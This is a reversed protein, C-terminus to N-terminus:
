RYPIRTSKGKLIRDGRETDNVWCSIMERTSLFNQLGGDVFRIDIDASIAQKPSCLENNKYKIKLVDLNIGWNLFNLLILFLILKNNIVRMFFLYLFILAPQLYSLEAPIYLFILLNSIILLILVLNEKLFLKQYKKFFIMFVLFFQIIGITMLTKYSFRSILGLFGQELPRAATLWALNFSNHYWIPLYFLGSIVFVCFCFILKRKISIKEDYQFFFIIIFAFLIFNLRCGVAFALALIGIEIFNRSFLFCGLSLFFFAWSYDIPELNDFFLIQNSLCLILFIVLKKSPEKKFFSFYILCLGFINLIFTTSNAAWSGLYYSLFGIGIEPVPYGTFRSSVFKGDSLRAEFVYIMPLTDEDSGYGGIFCLYFGFIIIIGLILINLNEQYTTKIKM